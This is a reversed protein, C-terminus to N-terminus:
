STQCIETDYRSFHLFAAVVIFFGERLVSCIFFFYCYFKFCSECSDSRSFFLPLSSVLKLGYRLNLVWFYFFHLVTVFLRYCLSFLFFGPHGSVWAVSLENQSRFGVRFGWGSLLWILPLFVFELRGDRAGSRARSGLAFASAPRPCTVRGAAPRSPAAPCRPRGEPPRPPLRGGARPWRAGQGLGAAPGARLPLSRGGASGLNLTKM